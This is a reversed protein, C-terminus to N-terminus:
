AQYAAVREWGALEPVTDTKVLLREVLGKMGVLEVVGKWGVKKEAVAPSVASLQEGDV